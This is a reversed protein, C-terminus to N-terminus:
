GSSWFQLFYQSIDNFTYKKEFFIRKDFVDSDVMLREGGMKRLWIKKHQLRSLNGGKKTECEIQNCLAKLYNFNSFLWYKGSSPGHLHGSNLPWCHTSQECNCVSSVVADTSIFPHEWSVWCCYPRFASFDAGGVSCFLNKTYTWWALRPFFM